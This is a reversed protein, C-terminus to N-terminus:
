DHQRKQGRQKKNKKIKKIKNYTGHVHQIPHCLSLVSVTSFPCRSECIQEWPLCSWMCRGKEPARYQLLSNSLSRRFLKRFERSESWLVLILLTRRRWSWWRMRVLLEKLASTKILLQYYCCMWPLQTRTGGRLSSPDFGLWGLSQSSPRLLCRFCRRMELPLQEEMTVGPLHHHRNWWLLMNIRM